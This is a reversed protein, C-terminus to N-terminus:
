TAPVEYTLAPPYVTEPTTPKDDFRVRLFWGGLGTNMAVSRLIVGKRRGMKVRIGRKAPVNHRARVEKM